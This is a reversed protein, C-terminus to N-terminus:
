GGKPLTELKTKAQEILGRLQGIQDRSLLLPPKAVRTNRVAFEISGTRRSGYAVVRFGGKSTFHADFGPLSTVSWDLKNLYDLANLLGPLEDYDILAQDEPFDGHAIGLVIGIERHGTGVETIERCKISLSGASAVVTGTQATARVIVMGTNTEFGELKTQPPVPCANTEQGM